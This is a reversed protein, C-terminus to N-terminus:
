SKKTKKTKNQIYVSKSESVFSEFTEFSDSFKASKRASHFDELDNDRYNM